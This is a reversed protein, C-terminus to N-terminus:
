RGRSKALLTRLEHILRGAGRFPSEDSGGDPDISADYDEELAELMREGFSQWEANLASLLEGRKFWVANLVKLREAEALSEDVMEAALRAAEKVNSPNM